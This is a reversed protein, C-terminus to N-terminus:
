KSWEVKSKHWVGASRSAEARGSEPTLGVPSWLSFICCFWWSEGATQRIEEGRETRWGFLLLLHASGIIKRSIIKASSSTRKKSKNRQRYDDELMPESRRAGRAAGEGGPRECVWSTRGAGPCSPPSLCCPLKAKYPAECSVLSESSELLISVIYNSQSM